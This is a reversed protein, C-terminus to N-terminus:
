RRAKTPRGLRAKRQGLAAGRHLRPQGIGHRRSGSPLRSPPRWPGSSACMRSTSRSTVATTLDLCAAAEDVQLVDEERKQSDARARPLRERLFPLADAESVQLVAMTLAVLMDFLTSSSPQPHGAKQGIIALSGKGLDWWVARAAVELVPGRENNPFARVTPKWVSAARPYLRMQSACSLFDFSMATVGDLSLIPLLIPQTEIVPRIWYEGAHSPVPELVAKMALVSSNKYHHFGVYWTQSPDRGPSLQFCVRHRVDAFFGAWAGAMDSFCNQEHVYSLMALDASLLGLNEATPSFYDAKQSTTM